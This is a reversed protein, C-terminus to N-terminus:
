IRNVRCAFLVHYFVNLKFAISVFSFFANPTCLGFRFSTHLIFFSFKFNFSFLDHKQKLHCRKERKQFCFFFASNFKRMKTIYNPKLDRKKKHLLDAFRCDHGGGDNTTITATPKETRKLWNKKRKM